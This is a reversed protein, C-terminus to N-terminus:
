SALFTRAGLDATSLVRIAAANNERGEMRQKVIQELGREIWPALGIFTLIRM